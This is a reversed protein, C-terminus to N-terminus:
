SLVIIIRNRNPTISHVIKLRTMAFVFTGGNLDVQADFKDCTGFTTPMMTTYVILRTMAFVFTGGNFDVQEDFKDCTGFTTPMMTTYVTLM